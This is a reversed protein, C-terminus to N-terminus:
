EGSFAGDYIIVPYDIAIPYNCKKSASCRLMDKFSIMLFRVDNAIQYDFCDKLNASHLKNNGECMADTASIYLQEELFTIYLILKPADTVNSAKM